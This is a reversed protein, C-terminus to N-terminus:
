REEENIKTPFAFESILESLLKPNVDECGTEQLLVLAKGLIQLKENTIIKGNVIYKTDLKMGQKDRGFVPEIPYRYSLSAVHRQATKYSCEVTDAIEQLTHVKGDSLCNLIDATVDSSRM